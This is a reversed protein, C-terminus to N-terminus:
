GPQLSIFSGLRSCIFFYNSNNQKGSETFESHRTNTTPQWNCIIVPRLQRYHGTMRCSCTTRQAQPTISRLDKSQILKLTLFPSKLITLTCLKMINIWLRGFIRARSFHLHYFFVNATQKLKQMHTCTDSYLNWSLAGIRFNSSLSSGCLAKPNCEWKVPQMRRLTWHPHRIAAPIHFNLGEVFYQADGMHWVQKAKACWQQHLDFPEAPAPNWCNMWETWITSYKEVPASQLVLRCKLSLM